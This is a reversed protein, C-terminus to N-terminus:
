RCQIQDPHLLRVFDVTERLQQQSETPLGIMVFAYTVMGLDDAEKEEASVEIKHEETM